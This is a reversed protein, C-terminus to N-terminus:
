DINIQKKLLKINAYGRGRKTKEITTSILGFDNKISGLCTYFIQMDSIIPKDKDLAWAIYAKYISNSYEKNDINLRVYEKDNLFLSILFTESNKNIIKAVKETMEKEYSFHWKQKALRYFGEIIWLFIGEKEKLIKTTLATDPIRNEDYQKVEMILFRRKLADVENTKCKIFHNGLIFLKCYSNVTIPNQYKKESKIPGGSIIKKLESSEKLELDPVEDEFMILHNIMNGLGFQGQLMNVISGKLVTDGFIDLVINGLVSKGAGSKGYIALGKHARNDKLLCYGFYEQLIIIDKAELLENLYKLFLVPSKANKNYNVNLRIACPRKKDKLFPKDKKLKLIGNMVDIEQLKLEQESYCFKIIAKVLSTAKADLRSEEFKAVLTIIDKHIVQINLEGEDDYLTDGIFKINACKIYTKIFEHEKFVRYEDGNSKKELVYWTSDKLNWVENIVIERKKRKM